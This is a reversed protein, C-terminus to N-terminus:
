YFNGKNPYLDWYGDPGGIGCDPVIRANYAAQVVEEEILKGLFGGPKGDTLFRPGVAETLASLADAGGGAEDRQKFDYYALAFLVGDLGNVGPVDTDSSFQPTVRKGLIHLNHTQQNASTPKGVLQLRQCKPASLDAPNLTIIPLITYGSLIPGSIISAIQVNGTLGNLWYSTQTAVFNGQTLNAAVVVTGPQYAPLTNLQEISDKAGMQYAYNQGIIFGTIEISNGWTLPLRPWVGAPILNGSNTYIQNIDEGLIIQGTTVPKIFSDVRDTTGAATGPLVAPNVASRVVSVGDEQLEDLTCIAPNPEAVASVLSLTQPTDFEWVCSPLTMFEATYGSRMFRSYDARYYLMQRQVELSQWGLRAGLVHQFIPPLVVRAKTPLYNSTPTYPANIAMEMEIISDKWLFARYLQDHRIQLFSRVAAGDKTTGDSTDVGLRQGVAKALQGQNM